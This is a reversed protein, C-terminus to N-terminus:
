RYLPLGAPPPHFVLHSGLAPVAENVVSLTIAPVPKVPGSLGGPAEYQVIKDSSAVWLGGQDDFALGGAPLSEEGGDLTVAPDPSSVGTLAGPDAFKMVSNLSAGIAASAWLAGDADFALGYFYVNGAYGSKAILADPTLTVAGSASKAASFRAIGTYSTVWLDGAADFALVGPLDLDTSAIQVSPDLQQAGALGQPADFRVITGGQPGLGGQRNVVWLNGSADFALNSPDQLAPSDIVLDAAASGSGRLAAAPLRVVRNAGAGVAWVNGDRDVAVDHFATLLDTTAAIAPDEGQSAQLQGQTFSCVANGAYWLFGEPASRSSGCAMLAATLCAPALRWARAM